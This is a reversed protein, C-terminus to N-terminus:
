RSVAGPMILRGDGSRVLMIYEAGQWKQARYIGDRRLLIFSGQYAGMIEKTQGGMRLFRLRMGELQAACNEINPQNRAVVNFKYTGDDQPAMHYCVGADLPAEIAKECAVLGFASVALAALTTIRSM